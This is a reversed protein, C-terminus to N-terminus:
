ALKSKHKSLISNSKIRQLIFIVLHYFESLANPYSGKSIKIAPLIHENNIRKYIRKLESFRCYFDFSREVAINLLNEISTKYASGVEIQAKSLIPNSEIRESVVATSLSEIISRILCGKFKKIASFINMMSEKMSEKTNQTIKAFLILGNNLM